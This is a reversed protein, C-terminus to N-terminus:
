KIADSCFEHSYCQSFLSASSPEWLLVQEFSKINSIMFESLGSKIGRKISNYILTNEEKSFAFSPSKYTIDMAKTEIVYGITFKISPISGGPRKMKIGKMTETLDDIISGTIDRSQLDM